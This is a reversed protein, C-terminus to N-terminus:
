SKPASIQVLFDPSNLFFFDKTLFFVNLNQQFFVFGDSTPWIAYLSDQVFIHTGHALFLVFESFKRPLSYLLKTGNSESSFFTRAGVM